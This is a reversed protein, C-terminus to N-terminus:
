IEYDLLLLSYVYNVKPFNEFVTNVLALIGFTFLGVYFYLQIYRRAIMSSCRQPNEPTVLNNSAVNEVQQM